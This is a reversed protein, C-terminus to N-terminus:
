LSLDFNHKIKINSLNVSHSYLNVISAKAIMYRTKLNFNIFYSSRSIFKLCTMYLSKGFVEENFNGGIFHDAEGEEEEDEDETDTEM